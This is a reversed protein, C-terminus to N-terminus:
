FPIGDSESPAEQNSPKGKGETLAQTGKSDTNWANVKTRKRTEGSSPDVWQDMKVTARAWRDKFSALDVSLRKEGDGLLGFAKVAAVFLGHGKNGPPIVTVDHWIEAGRFEGEGGVELKLSVKQRGSSKTTGLKAVSCYFLYEIERNEQDFAPLLVEDSGVEMEIKQGM